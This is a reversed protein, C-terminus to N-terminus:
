FYVQSTIPRLNQYIGGNNCGKTEAKNHKLKSELM